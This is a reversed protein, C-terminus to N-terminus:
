VSKLGVHSSYFISKVQKIDTRRSIDIFLMPEGALKQILPKQLLKTITLCEPVKTKVFVVFQTCPRIYFM